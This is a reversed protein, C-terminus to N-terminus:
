LDRRTRFIAKITHSIGNLPSKRWAALVSFFLEHLSNSGATGSCHVKLRDNQPAFCSFKSMNRSIQRASFDTLQDTGAFIFSTRRPAPAECSRGVTVL